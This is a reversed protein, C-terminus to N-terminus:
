LLIAVLCGVLTLVVANIANDAVPPSWYDILLFVLAIVLAVIWNTFFIACLFAVAFGAIFGEVSKIQNYPRHVKHRGYAKGVIAAAGDALTSILITALAIRIAVTGGLVPQFAMGILWACTSSIAIYDQAGPGGKEKDRLIKGARREILSIVSYEDGALLRFSDIFMVLIITASLAFLTLTIAGEEFNTTSFRYAEPIPGWIIEYAPGALVIAQDVLISLLPAIIFYSAVALFGALHFAKRAKEHKYKLGDEPAYEPDATGAADGAPASGQPARPKVGGRKVKVYFATTIAAWAWAWWQMFGTYPYPFLSPYTPFPNIFTIAFAIVFVQAAAILSSYCGYAHKGKNRMGIYVLVIGFFMMEIFFLTSFLYPPVFM